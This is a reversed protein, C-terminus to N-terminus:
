PTVVLSSRKGSGGPMERHETAGAVRIGWGIGGQLPPTYVEKSELDVIPPLPLRLKGIARLISAFAM